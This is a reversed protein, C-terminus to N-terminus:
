QYDINVIFTTAAVATNDNDALGNTVCISIGTTFSVGGAITINSGGGNAATSAAPIIFTKVVTDSQCTPASAKDYFKLYAPASGIGGLQVGYLTGASNKVNNSNTTNVPILHYKSPAPALV